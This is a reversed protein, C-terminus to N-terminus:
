VAVKVGSALAVPVALIPMALAWNLSAAPLVLWSVKAALTAPVTCSALLSTAM